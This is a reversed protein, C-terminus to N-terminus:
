AAVDPIRLGRIRSGSRQEHRRVSASIHAIAAAARQAAHPNTGASRFGDRVQLAHLVRQASPILDTGEMAGGGQVGPYLPGADRYSAAIHRAWEERELPGSSPPTHTITQYAAVPAQFGVSATYPAQMSYGASAGASPPTSFTTAPVALAPPTAPVYAPPPAAPPAAGFGTVGLAAPPTDLPNPGPPVPGGKIGTVFARAM